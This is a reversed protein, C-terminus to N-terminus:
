SWLGDYLAIPTQVIVAHKQVNLHLADLKVVNMNFVVIIVELLSTM